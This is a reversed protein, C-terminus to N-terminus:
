CVWSVRAFFEVAGRDEGDRLRQFSMETELTLWNCLMRWGASYSNIDFVRSLLERDSM